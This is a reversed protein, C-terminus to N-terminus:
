LEIPRKEIQWGDNVVWMDDVIYLPKNWALDHVTTMVHNWTIKDLSETHVEINLRDGLFKAFRHILKTSDAANYVFFQNETNEDCAVMGLWPKNILVVWEEAHDNPLSPNNGASVWNSFDKLLSAAQESYGYLDPRYLLRKMHGCGLCACVEDEQPSTHTDTHTYIDEWFFDKAWEIIQSIDTDAHNKEVYSMMVAVIWATAWPFAMGANQNSRGDVCKVIKEDDPIEYTRGSNLLLEEVKWVGDSLISNPTNMYLFNVNIINIINTQKKM